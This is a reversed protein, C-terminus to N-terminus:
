LAAVIYNEYDHGFLFENFEMLQMDDTQPIILVTGEDTPQDMTFAVKLEYLKAFTQAVVEMPTNTAIIFESAEFPTNTNM